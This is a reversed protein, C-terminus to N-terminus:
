IQCPLLICLVWMSDHLLLMYEITVAGNKFQSPLYFGLIGMICNINSQERTAQPMNPSIEHGCIYATAKKRTKFSVMKSRLFHPFFVKKSAERLPQSNCEAENSRQREKEGM